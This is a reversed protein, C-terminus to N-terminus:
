LSRAYAALTTQPSGLEKWTETSEFQEPYKNLAECIHWAYDFKTSFNGLFKMLGIPARMTGLRNKSYNEIFIKNAEDFRLPEPGQVPYEKNTLGSFAFSRAVQKGYDAAAIFWMPMLSKGLMAIKNGRLIQYPYTEMFTSPYFITYSTGSNKIREVARQKIRFAWWHFGNMGEYRHVLSSLYALRRIGTERVAELIHDLGEREPQLDKERSSQLVSLNCYVADAGRMANVLSDKEFVDGRIIKQGPFLVTTKQTDRALLTLDFGSRILEKAVPKGLMGTAGIFVIKMNSINVLKFVIIAIAL